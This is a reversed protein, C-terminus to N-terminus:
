ETLGEHSIVDKIAIYFFSPAEEPKDAFQQWENDYDHFDYDENLCLIDDETMYALGISEIRVDMSFTGYDRLHAFFVDKFPFEAEEFKGDKILKDVQKAKAPDIFKREYFDTTPRIELKKTGNLIQQAFEKKIILDYAEVENGNYIIKM